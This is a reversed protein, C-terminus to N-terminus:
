ESPNHEPQEATECDEIKVEKKHHEVEERHLCDKCSWMILWDTKLDFQVDWKIYNDGGCEPCKDRAMEQMPHEGAYDCEEITKACYQCEFQIFTDMNIEWRHAWQSSVFSREDVVPNQISGCNPCFIREGKDTELIKLKTSDCENCKTIKRKQVQDLRKKDHFVLCERIGYKDRHYFRPKDYSGKNKRFIVIITQVDLPGMGTAVDIWFHHYKVHKGPKWAPIGYMPTEADEKVHLGGTPEQPEGITFSMIHMMTMVADKKFQGM